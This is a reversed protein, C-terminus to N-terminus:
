LWGKITRKIKERANRLTPADQESPTKLDVCHACDECEVFVNKM